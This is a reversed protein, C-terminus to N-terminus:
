FLLALSRSPSRPTAYSGLSLPPESLAGLPVRHAPCCLLMNLTSLATLDRGAAPTSGAHNQALLDSTLRLTTIWLIPFMETGSGVQLSASFDNGPMGGWWASTVLPCVLLCSHHLPRTLLQQPCTAPLHGSASCHTRHGAGAPAKWLSPPPLARCTRTCCLEAEM